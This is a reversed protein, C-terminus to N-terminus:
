DLLTPAGLLCVLFHLFVWPCIRLEPPFDYEGRPPLNRYNELIVDMYLTRQAPDMYEQEQSFEIAVDAYFTM